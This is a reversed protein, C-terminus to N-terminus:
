FITIYMSYGDRVIDLFFGNNPDFAQMASRFDESNEIKMRNIGAILDGKQLKIKVDPSGEVETIVVGESNSPLNYKRSLENNIDNIELSFRAGRIRVGNPLTGPNNWEASFQNGPKGTMMASSILVVLIALCTFILYLNVQELDIAKKM